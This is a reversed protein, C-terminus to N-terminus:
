ATQSGWGCFCWSPGSQCTTNIPTSSSPLPTMKTVQVHVRQERDDEITLDRGESRTGRVFRWAWSMGSGRSSLTTCPM